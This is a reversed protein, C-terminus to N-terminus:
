NKELIQKLEYLVPISDESTFKSRYSPRGGVKSNEQINQAQNRDLLGFSKKTRLKEKGRKNEMALTMIRENLKNRLEEDTLKRFDDKHDYNENAIFIQETITDDGEQEYESESGSEEVNRFKIESSLSPYSNFNFIHSPGYEDNSLTPSQVVDLQLGNCHREKRPRGSRGNKSTESQSWLRSLESLKKQLKKGIEEDTDSSNTIMLKQLEQLMNLTTATRFDQHHTDETDKAEHTQIGGDNLHSRYQGLFSYVTKLLENLEKLQDLTIVSRRCDSCNGYAKYTAFIKELTVRYESEKEETDQKSKSGISLLCCLIFKKLLHTRVAKESIDGSEGNIVFYLDVFNVGYIECYRFLERNRLIPLLKITIKQLEYFSLDLSATLVDRIISLNSGSPQCSQVLAIPKYITLEKYRIHLRHLLKDLNQLQAVATQLALLASYKVYQDHFSEQQLAIYIAISLAALIRKKSKQPAKCRAMLGLCRRVVLFTPFLPVTKRLLFQKNVATFKGFKTPVCPLHQSSYSEKDRHFNLISKESKPQATWLPRISDTLLQSAIITYQFEENFNQNSFPSESFIKAVLVEYKSKSAEPNITLRSLEKQIDDELYLNDHEHSSFESSGVVTPSNDNLTDIGWDSLKNVHMEIGSSRKLNNACWSDPMANVGAQTSNLTSNSRSLCGHSFVQLGHLKFTPESKDFSM